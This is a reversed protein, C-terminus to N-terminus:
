QFRKKEINGEILGPLLAPLPVLKDHHLQYLKDHYM